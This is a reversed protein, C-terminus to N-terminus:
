HGAAATQLVQQYSPTYGPYNPDYATLWDQYYIELVTVHNQAAFPLLNALSGTTCTNDPCSQGITQLELPVQGTYQQFLNCWDATSSACNGVDSKELGQSGFGIHNQVAIPTIFDPVEHGGNSGMPTVGVMLQRHSNLSGEYNLMSSLYTKWTSVTVGWSAFATGCTGSDQWDGVPITEGGRGLGFRIYGVNSNSSYHSIVAAMFNQYPTQFGSVDLYNPIQQPGAANNPTCMTFNAPGLATWVYAPIACNGTNNQGGNTCTNNSSDANAWVILNVKKGASIWPQIENDVFTFDYQQPASPGQDVNSWQVQFSAGSVTSNNMLYQKINPDGAAGSPVLVNM